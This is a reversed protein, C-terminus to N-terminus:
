KKGALRGFHKGVLDWCQKPRECALLSYSACAEYGWAALNKVGAKEWIELAQTIEKEGSKAHAFLQVWGQAEKGHRSALDAIRGAYLDVFGKLPRKQPNSFPRQKWYPDTAVIDVSPLSAVHEWQPNPWKKDGMPLLCVANKLRPNVKKTERTAWELFGVLTEDRFEEVEKTWVRPFAKGYARKFDKQCLDCRCSFEGERTKRGNWEAIWLHPEDWFLVDGGARSAGQIWSRVYRRFEPQRPCANGVREGTSLVQCASPHQMVFGSYAEGGFIGGLGWPSYYVKLGARHTLETIRRMNELNYFLDLEDFTHLVFNCHHKKIDELDNKLHRLIRTSFYSVGLKYSM